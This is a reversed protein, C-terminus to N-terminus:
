NEQEASLELFNKTIDKKDLGYISQLIEVEDQISQSYGTITFAVAIILISIKKM